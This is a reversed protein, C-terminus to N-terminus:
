GEGVDGLCGRDLRASEGWERGWGNWAVESRAQSKGGSVEVPVGAMVEDVTPGVGYLVALYQLVVFSVLIDVNM